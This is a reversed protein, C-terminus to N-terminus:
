AGPPATVRLLAPPGRRNDPTVARVEVQLDLPKQEWPPGDRWMFLFESRRGDVRGVVPGEPFISLGAGDGVVRFEFGLDRVKYDTGRPWEVRVTLLGTDDCSAHRTGVGRTVNVVEVEPPRLDGAEGPQAVGVAPQFPTVGTSLPCATADAMGLVACFAWAFKMQM